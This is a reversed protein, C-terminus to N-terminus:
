ESAVQGDAVRLSSRHFGVAKQYAAEDDIVPFPGTCGAGRVRDAGFIGKYAYYVETELHKAADLSDCPFTEAYDIAQLARTCLAGRGTSHEARRRDLDSALGVYYRDGTLRLVYVLM